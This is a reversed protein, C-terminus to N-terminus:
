LMKCSGSHMFCIPLFFFVGSYQVAQVKSRERPTNLRQILLATIVDCKDCKSKTLTSVADSESMAAHKPQFNHENHVDKQSPESVM